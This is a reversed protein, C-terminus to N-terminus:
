VPHVAARGQDAGPQRAPDRRSPRHHRRDQIRHGVGRVRAPLARPAGGLHLQRRVEQLDARGAVHVGRCRVPVGDSGQDGEAGGLRRRDEQDTQAGTRAGRDAPRAGRRHHDPHRHRFADGDARGDGPRDGQDDGFGPLRPHGPDHGAARHYLLAGRVAHRVQPPQELARDPAPEGRGPRGAAAGGGDASGARDARYGGPRRHLRHRRQRLHDTGPGGGAGVPGAPCSAFSVSRDRHGNQRADWAATRRLDQRPRPHCSRHDRGHRSKPPAPSQYGAWTIAEAAKDGQGAPPTRAARRGAALRM